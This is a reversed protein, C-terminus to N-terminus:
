EWLNAKPLDILDDRRGLIPLVMRSVVADVLVPGDENAVTKM